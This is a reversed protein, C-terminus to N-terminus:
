KKKLEAEIIARFTEYPQAGIIMTKNILITPTGLVGIESGLGVEEDITRELDKKKLADREFLDNLEGTTQTGNRQPESYKANMMLFPIDNALSLTEFLARFYHEFKGNREASLAVEAAPKANPHFSLPFNVFLFNIKGTKIYERDIKKFTTEYFQKSFPCEFDGFEVVTVKANISGILRKQFRQKIKKLFSDSIKKGSNPNKLQQGRTTTASTIAAVFLVLLALVVTSVSLLIKPDTYTEILKPLVFVSFIAIIIFFLARPNQLERIVERSIPTPDM